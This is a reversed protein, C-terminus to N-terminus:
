KLKYVSRDARYRKTLRGKVVLRAGGMVKYKINEFIIDRLKRYYAKNLSSNSLETNSTSFAQAEVINKYYLNYLLKNLNDKFSKAYVGVNNESGVAVSLQPIVSNINYNRYKNEVLSYDVQKEVRGREIITNVEPLVVKALLSNIRHMANSKEKKLKLTLIETFIDSNYAISKLNVINFEVKKGYYKGLLVSLKNLFREEFKNKNLSLRLRLRRVLSFFKKVKKSFRLNRSFYFKNSYDSRNNTKYKLLLALNDKINNTSAGV